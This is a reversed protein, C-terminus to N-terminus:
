GLKMLRAESEENKALRNELEALKAREKDVVDLRPM